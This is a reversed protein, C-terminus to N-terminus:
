ARTGKAQPRTRREDVYAGGLGVLLVTCAIWANSGLQNPDAVEATSVVAEDESGAVLIPTGAVFCAPIDDVKGAIKKGGGRPFAPPQM